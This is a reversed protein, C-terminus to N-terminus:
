KNKNNVKKFLFFIIYISFLFIGLLIITNIIQFIFEYSFGILPQIDEM